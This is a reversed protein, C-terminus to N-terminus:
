HFAVTELIFINLNELIRGSLFFNAQDNEVQKRKCVNEWFNRFNIQDFGCLRRSNKHELFSTFIVIKRGDGFETL